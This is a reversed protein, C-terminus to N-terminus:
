FIMRLVIRGTHRVFGDRIDSDFDFGFSSYGTGAAVSFGLLFGDSPFAESVVTSRIDRGVFGYSTSVGDNVFENRYGVRLSPRIWTRRGEFNAGVNFMATAGALESTRKAVDLAIASNPLGTETYGGENLRLYDVSFAPRAWYKESLAIDYGGRISANVHTGSWNAEATESFDRIVVNRVQDFSNYGGGAYLDVSFDGSQIGGYVGGQVTLVDLPDDFGVVDEIETSAFGINVGATHFPGFATDLGGTFGFGFGRFQESFGALDRDAFYTFEQIWAGGPQEQSRRANDLHSGVAGVAGDVNAVVFHRSAAAFEPLLQNLGNRFEDAETINVFARALDANGFLADYAGDFSATQVADLGLAETARLDLTILLINPDNPDLEFTPTYLYPSEFSLLDELSGALNLAGGANAIQFTNNNLDIVNSLVPSITAGDAFSIDGTTVLTSALGSQGDLTPRFSSTGDFSASTANIPTATNQYISSNDTVTIILQGTDTITGEYSSGGSLSFVDAGDAFDIDGTITGAALDVTDDGSGLYIDGFIAPDPPTVEDTLDEDIAAAQNITVGTTNARLDMAITQFEFESNGLPDSSSGLATITGTNDIQTLTGSADRIVISTGSRGILAASLVGSNVINSLTGGAEVDIAVAILDQPALPNDLDAFIENTNESVQALMIGSNNIEDVIAGSGLVVVRAIATDAAGDAGSRFAEARIAGINNIGGVLTADRVELGTTSVDDLVGNATITGQNVFAYQLHATDADTSTLPIITGITIQAGEGDFLIAPASGFQTVSSNGTFDVVLGDDDLVPERRLYVGETIDGNVLIAANAQLTDTADIADPISLITNRDTFRYGTNAITGDNTFGGNISGGVAIASTGEGQSSISGGQTLDGTLNGDIAIGQTTGSTATGDADRSIGGITRISGLLNIDGTVSASELIRFAYSENGEISITSAATTTIDGVFPSAGSILIGTRGEGEAFPGDITFDNDSDTREITEGLDISGGFSLSGTNGGQLEIAAVNETDASTISGNVTLSNDSDLVVGSGETFTVTGDANILVDCATGNDETATRIQRTIEGSIGGTVNGDGDTVSCATQAFAGPAYGMALVPLTAALLRKKLSM